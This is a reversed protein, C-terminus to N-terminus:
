FVNRNKPDSFYAQWDETDTGGAPQQMEELTRAFTQPDVIEVKRRSVRAALAQDSTVVKWGSGEAVKRVILDDASQAGSFVITANGLVRSFREPEPGDFYCTVRTKRARAFQALRQALARKAETSERAQGVLRGLVNNGDVVWSM